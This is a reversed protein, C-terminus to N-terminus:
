KTLSELWDAIKGDYLEFNCEDLILCVAMILFAVGFYKLLVPFCWLVVHFMRFFSELGLLILFLGCFFKSIWGGVALVISLIFFAAFFVISLAIRLIWKLVKM